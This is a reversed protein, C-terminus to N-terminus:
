WFTYLSGRPNEPSSDGILAVARLSPCFFSGIKLGWGWALLYSVHGLAVKFLRHCAVSLDTHWVVCAQQRAMKWCHWRKWEVHLMLYPRCPRTLLVGTYVVSAQLKDEGLFAGQLAIPVWNSTLNIWTESCSFYYNLSISYIGQMDLIYLRGLKMELIVSGQATGSVSFWQAANTIGWFRQAWSHLWWTKNPSASPKWCALSHANLSRPATHLTSVPLKNPSCHLIWALLLAPLLHFFPM